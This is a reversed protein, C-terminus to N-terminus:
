IWGWKWATGNKLMSMTRSHFQCPDMDWFSTKTFNINYDWWTEHKYWFSSCNQDNAAPSYICPTSYSQGHNCLRFYLDFLYMNLPGFTWFDALKDSCNYVSKINEHELRRTQYQMVTKDIRQFWLKISWM